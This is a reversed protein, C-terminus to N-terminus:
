SAVAKADFEKRSNTSGDLLDFDSRVLSSISGVFGWYRVSLPPILVLKDKAPVQILGTAAGV